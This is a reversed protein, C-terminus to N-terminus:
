MSLTGLKEQLKVMRQKHYFKQYRYKASHQRCAQYVSHTLKGCDICPLKKPSKYHIGCGEEQYSERNCVEGSRLIYQCHYFGM